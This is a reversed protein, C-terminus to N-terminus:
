AMEPGLHQRGADFGEHVRSLAKRGTEEARAHRQYGSLELRDARCDTFVLAVALLGIWM